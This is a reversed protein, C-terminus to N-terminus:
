TIQIARSRRRQQDLPCRGPSCEPLDALGHERQSKCSFHPDRKYVWELTAMGERETFPRSGKQCSNVFGAMVERAKGIDLGDKKCAIAVSMSAYFRKGEPAGKLLAQMCPLQLHKGKFSSTELPKPLMAHLESAASSFIEPLKPLQVPSRAKRFIAKKLCALLASKALFVSGGELQVGHLHTGGNGLFDTLPMTCSFEESSADGGFSISPFFDRAVVLLDQPCADLFSAAITSEGKAFQNWYYDSGVMALLLRALVYSYVAEKASSPPSVPPEVSKSAVRVSRNVRDQALELQQIGM